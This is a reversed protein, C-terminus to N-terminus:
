VNLQRYIKKKWAFYGFIAVIFLILTLIAYLLLDKHIYLPIAFANSINLLLWNEIKRKALLWMGAWATVSVWTDWLPVTSDTFHILIKYLFPTGLLLFGAVVLWDSTSCTTIPVKESSGKRLWYYWGYISMVLYYANLLIEAYLGAEYLVFMTILISIIGCPYLAVKNYRALLVEAIGFLVGFWQILPTQILQEKFINLWEAM